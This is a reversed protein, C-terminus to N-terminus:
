SLLTNVHWRVVTIATGPTFSGVSARWIKFIQDSESQGVIRERLASGPAGPGRGAGAVGAGRGNAIDQFLDAAIPASATNKDQGLGQPKPPKQPNIQVGGGQPAAPPKLPRQPNQPGLEFDPVIPRVSGRAKSTPVGRSGADQDRRYPDAQLTSISISLLLTVFASLIPPYNITKFKIKM